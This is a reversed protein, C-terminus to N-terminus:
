KIKNCRPFYLPKLLDELISKLDKNNVNRCINGKLVSPVQSNIRKRVINRMSRNFRATYIM